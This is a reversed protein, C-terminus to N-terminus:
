AKPKAMLAYVISAYGAIIVVPAIYLAISFQAVDIFDELGLLIYGFVLVGLGGLLLKYNLGKLPLESKIAKAAKADPADLDRILDALRSESTQTAAPATQAAPPPTKKNKSM